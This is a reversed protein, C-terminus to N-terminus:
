MILSYAISAPHIHQTRVTMRLIDQNEMTTYFLKDAAEELGEEVEAVYV